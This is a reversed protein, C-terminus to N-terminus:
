NHVCLDCFLDLVHQYLVQSDGSVLQLVGALRNPSSMPSSEMSEMSIMAPISLRNPTCIVPAALSFKWVM